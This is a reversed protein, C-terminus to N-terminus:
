ASPTLSFPLLPFTARVKGEKARRGQCCLYIDWTFPVRGTGPPLSAARKDGSLTKLVSFTACVTGTVEGGNVVWPGSVKTKNILEM